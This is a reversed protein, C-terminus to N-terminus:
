RPYIMALSKLCADIGSEKSAAGTRSVKGHTLLTSIFVRRQRRVRTRRRRMEVRSVPPAKDLYGAPHFPLVTSRCAACV